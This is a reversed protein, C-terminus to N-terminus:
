SGSAQDQEFHFLVPVRMHTYVARNGKRGPLFKWKEVASVASEEFEPRSSSVAFVNRVNGNPDVIFDVTVQGSAKIRTMEYPYVPRAQFKPRPEQDLQSIDLVTFTGFNTRNEPIKVVHKALDSVDPPPPEIQQVFAEPTVVQPVDTQMPPAPEDPLPPRQTSDSVEDAPDPEIKPMVIRIIPDEEKVEVKPVFHTRDGLWAVLFEATITLLFSVVRGKRVSAYRPNRYPDERAPNPKTKAPKNATTPM